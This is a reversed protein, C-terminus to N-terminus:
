PPTIQAAIASLLGDFSRRFAAVGEEELQRAANELSLGLAELQAPMALADELREGIRISPKGHDRYADLTAPPVTNVSDPAILAELYYVDSYAPDKTGTSAWLPRQLQAGKKKLQQFRSGQFTELFAQYALQANAIAVRGRLRRGAEGRVATVIDLKPDLLSDFRSVFFSAVSAIPALPLARALRDELAALYMDMVQRYREVSFLLTVNVNIGDALATRIAPLCGETGPIKIMLNPKDVWEWLRKAERLTAEADDAFRPSVELSVYGDIGGSGKFIPQLLDATRQVDEVALREYMEEPTLEQAALARLAEGYDDSGGIAKEFIAPNSTVGRIEERRIMGKLEGNDLLQRRINDYWVSQGLDNLQALPNKKM